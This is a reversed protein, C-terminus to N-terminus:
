KDGEFFFPIIDKLDILEVHNERFSYYEGVTTFKTGFQSQFKSWLEYNKSLVSKLARRGQLFILPYDVGVTYLYKKKLTDFEALLYFDKFFQNQRISEPGGKWDIFKFEAVRFNTELDFPRGTNGAALSLSEVVENERLIYALSILIGVAHVIENIQSSARKVFLSSTFLSLDIGQNSLLSKCVVNTAGSFEKELFSIRKKLSGGKFREVHIFARNLSM